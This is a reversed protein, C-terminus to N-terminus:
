VKKLIPVIGAVAEVANGESFTTISPLFWSAM